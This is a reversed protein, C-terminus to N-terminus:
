GDDNWSMGRRLDDNDGLTGSRSPDRGRGSLWARVVHSTALRWVLFAGLLAVFIYFAM